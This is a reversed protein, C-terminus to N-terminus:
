AALGGAPQCRKLVRRQHEVQRRALAAKEEFLVPLALLPFGSMWAAAAADHAARLYSAHLEADGSEQLLQQLLRAKLREFEPQQADRLAAAPTPAVAFRTVRAFRAPLKKDRRKM